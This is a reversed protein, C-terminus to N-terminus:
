RGPATYVVEDPEAGSDMIGRGSGEHRHSMFRNERLGELDILERNLGINHGAEKLRDNIIRSATPRGTSRDVQDLVNKLRKLEPDENTLAYASYQDYEFHASLWSDFTRWRKQDRSNRTEFIQILRDYMKNAIDRVLEPKLEELANSQEIFAAVHEDFTEDKM